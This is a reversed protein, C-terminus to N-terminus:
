TRQVIWTRMARRMAAMKEEAAEPREDHAAFYVRLLPKNSAPRLVITGAELDLAVIQASDTPLTTTQLTALDFATRRDYDRLTLVRMGGIDTPIDHCLLRLLNYMRTAGSM